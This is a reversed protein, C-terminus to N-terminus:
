QPGGCEDILQDLPSPPLDAELAALALAVEQKAVVSAPVSPDALVLADAQHELSLKPGSLIEDGLDMGDDDEEADAASANKRKKADELAEGIRSQGTGWLSVVVQEGM